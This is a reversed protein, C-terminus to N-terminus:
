RCSWCSLVHTYELDVVHLDKGVEPHVAGVSHSPFVAFVAHFLPVPFVTQLQHVETHAYLEALRVSVHVALVSVIELVVHLTPPGGAGVVYVQEAALWEAQGVIV